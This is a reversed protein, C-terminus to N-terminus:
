SRPSRRSSSTRAEAHLVSACTTRARRLQVGGLEGGADIVTATERDKDRWGGIANFNEFAFGSRISSATARRQVLPQLSAGGHARARDQAKAGDMNEKLAEVGPPPAHPPTGTINELIWAGRKVPSTRNAYSTGMLFSGKGLLGWRNSDTLTVRRFQEGRVNPIGYHQALRENVFTYNADLLRMVSQDRASCATSSCSSRRASPRACRATSSRSCRESRARHADIEDVNLWQDAFNDVLSKSRPDALM